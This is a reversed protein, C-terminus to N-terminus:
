FATQEQAEIKKPNGNKEICLAGYWADQYWFTTIYTFFPALPLERETSFPFVFYNCDEWVCHLVDAWDAICQRLVPDSIRSSKPPAGLESFAFPLPLARTEGPRTRIVEGRLAAGHLIAPNHLKKQLTFWAGDPLMVGLPLPKEGGTLTVRYIYGREFPCQARVTVEQGMVQWTVEGVEKGSLFLRCRGM